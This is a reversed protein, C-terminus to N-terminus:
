KTQPACRSLEDRRKTLLELKAEQDAIRRTVLDDDAAGSYVAAQEIRERIDERGTAIEEDLSIPQPAFDPMFCGIYPSLRGAAYRGAATVRDRPLHSLSVPYKCAVRIQARESKRLKRAQPLNASVESRRIKKPCRRKSRFVRSIKTEDM